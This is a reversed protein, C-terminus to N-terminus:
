RRVGDLDLLEECVAGRVRVVGQDIAQEGTRMVALAPAPVPEVNGVVAVGVAVVLVLAAVVGPWISVIHNRRKLRSRGKPRKM